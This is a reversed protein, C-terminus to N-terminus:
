ALEKEEEFSLISSKCCKMHTHHHFDEDFEDSNSSRTTVDATSHSCKSSMESNINLVQSLKSNSEVQNKQDAIQNKLIQSKESNLDSKDLVEM